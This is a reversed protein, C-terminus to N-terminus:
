EKVTGEAKRGGDKYEGTIGKGCPPPSNDQRGTGVTVRRPARNSPLVSFVTGSTAEVFGLAM